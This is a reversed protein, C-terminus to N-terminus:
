RRRSSTMQAAPDRRTYAADRATVFSRRLFDTVRSEYAEPDAAHGGSHEAGPVVWHEAHEGAREPWGGATGCRSRGIRRVM